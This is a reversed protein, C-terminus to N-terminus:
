RVDNKRKGEERERLLRSWTLARPYPGGSSEVGNREGLEKWGNAVTTIKAVAIRRLKECGMERRNDDFGAAKPNTVDSFHGRQLEAERERFRETKRPLGGRVERLAPEQSSLLV